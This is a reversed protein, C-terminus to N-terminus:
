RVVKDAQYLVQPAINLGLAQAVKLNIAFVIQPNVEVPINAPKKGKLIKDV